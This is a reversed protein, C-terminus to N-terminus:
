ERGDGNRSREDRIEWHAQLLRFTTIEALQRDDATWWPVGYRATWRVATRYITKPNLRSQIEPRPQLIAPWSAEIVIAKVRMEALREVESRFRERREESGLTGYLDALSKREIAVEAELGRISYDGTPLYKVETRIELPRYKQRADATLGHFAYPARERNDIAVVFPVAIPNPDSM